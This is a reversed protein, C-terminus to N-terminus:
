WWTLRVINKKEVHSNTEKCMEKIEKNIEISEKVVEDVLKRMEAIKEDLGNVIEGTNENIMYGNVNKYNSMKIRETM